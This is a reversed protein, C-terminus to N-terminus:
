LALLLQGQPHSSPLPLCRTFESGVLCGLRFQGVMGWVRMVGGEGTEAGELTEPGSAGKMDVGVSLGPMPGLM